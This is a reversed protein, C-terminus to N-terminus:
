FKTSKDWLGSIHCNNRKSLLFASSTIYKMQGGTCFMRIQSVVILTLSMSFIKSSHLSSLHHVLVKVVKKTRSVISSPFTACSPEEAIFLFKNSFGFFGMAWFSFNYRPDELNRFFFGLFHMVLILMWTQYHYWNLNFILTFHYKTHGTSWM